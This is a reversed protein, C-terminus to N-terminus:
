FPYGIGLNFNTFSYSSTHNKQFDIKWENDFLHKIVWRDSETFQPDRVKIGLDFRIIFFSFDLRAGIGSGIAFEKYFRDPQFNGGKSGASQKLLWINGADVFLAGNLQRLMKFRYEINGEMQMEGIQDFNFSAPYSGPGLSRIQWARIGNAGGGYFSKEFPLSQLNALTKGIGGAARFVLQHYEAMKKYYRLDVDARLYQSYPVNLIQYSGNVDKRVGALNDFARLLNGSTEFNFRMYRHNRNKQIVQDNYIFSYRTDTVLHPQYSNKILINKSNDIISQFQPKLDVQVFSIEIPNVLHSKTSSERWSYGFAVKNIVRSYDPRQQFNYAVNFITKPNSSKSAKIKFPFLFRPVYLNVEPGFELTNFPIGKKIDINSSGGQQNLLRQVELGGRLRAEFIEAGKFVNKNQYVLSGAVGLNGGTNTGETEITFSQKLVPNLLIYCDLSDTAGPTKVFQVNVYRFARLESLRRYTAEGNNIQYIESKEIFTADLIVFPKFKLKNRFLIDYNKIHLTDKEIKGKARNDFETDIYINSIYFKQHPKEILSDPHDAPSTTNKKIGITIDLLNNKLSSDVKFYIFEKSFFYYGNNNLMRTVREREKQLIDVDYNQGPKITCNLTDLMVYYNVPQDDIDYNIKRIKYPKGPNIIYIVKARKHKLIASDRVSNHFYGKGNLFLHIQKSSNRSLISDYIVPAEGVEILWEGFLQKDSSKTKKGKAVRNINEAERKQLWAEKKQKVKEENALNHLWLHFRIAGLIKRNPKQKIYAEIESKDIANQDEAIKVESLLHQGDTLKRTPGCSCILFAIFCVSLFLIIKKLRM